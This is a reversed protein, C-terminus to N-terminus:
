INIHNMDFLLFSLKSNKKVLISCSSKLIEYIEPMQKPGVLIGRSLNDIILGEEVFSVAQRTISEILPLSSMQKRIAMDLPHAFSNSILGPFKMKNIIMNTNSVMCSILPSFSNVLFFIISIYYSSKM